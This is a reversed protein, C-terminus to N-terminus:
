LMATTRGNVGGGRIGWTYVFGSGEVLLGVWWTCLDWGGAMLVAWM